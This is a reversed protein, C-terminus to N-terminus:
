DAQASNWLPSRNPNYVLNKGKPGNPFGMMSPPTFVKKVNSGCTPCKELTDESITQTVEFVGCDPCSYDYKPM